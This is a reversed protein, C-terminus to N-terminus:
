EEEPGVEVGGEGHVDAEYRRQWDPWSEVTEEADDLTAWFDIADATM